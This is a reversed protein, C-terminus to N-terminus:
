PYIKNLNDNCVKLDNKELLSSKASNILDKSSSAEVLLKEIKENFENLGKEMAAKFQDTKVTGSKKQENLANLNKQIEDITNGLSNQENLIKNEENKSNSILIEVQALDAKNTNLQELLTFQKRNLDNLDKKYKNIQEEIGSSGKSTADFSQKNTFYSNARETTQDKLNKLLKLRESRKENLHNCLTTLGDQHIVAGVM